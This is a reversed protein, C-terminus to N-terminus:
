PCCGSARRCSRALFGCRLPDENSESLRLTITTAIRAAIKGASGDHRDVSRLRGYRRRIKEPMSSQIVKPRRQWPRAANEGGRTGSPEAPKSRDRVLELFAM